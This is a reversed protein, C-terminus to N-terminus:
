ALLTKLLYRTDRACLKRKRRLSRDKKSKEKNYQNLAPRRLRSFNQAAHGKRIRCANERFSIDLQWHLNNEV